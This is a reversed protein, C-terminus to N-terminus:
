PEVKVQTIEAKTLGAATPIVENTQAGAVSVLLSYEGAPLGQPLTIDTTQRVVQDIPWKKASWNDFPLGSSLGWEAGSRDILRLTVNFNMQAPQALRWYLKVQARDRGPAVVVPDVGALTLAVDPWSITTATATAPLAEFVPFHATYLQYAAGLWVSPYSQHDLRLWHGRAWADLVNSDFGSLPKPSNLFWVRQAQTGLAQFKSFEAEVDLSPYTPIIQWPAQGGCRRYYYEFVFSTIADHVIVVDDPKAQAAIACTAARLDEKVYAPDTFQVMLWWGMIILMAALAIVALVRVRRWLLALGYGALLYFPPLIFMVHRPGTYLPRIFTAAYFALLPILLYLLTLLTSARRAKSLLGGVVGIILVCLGPLVAWEPQFIDNTRGVLFTGWVEPAISDLPRFGFTRDNIQGRSLGYGILPIALVILAVFVLLAERRRSRLLVALMVGGEFLLLFFATFHTYLMALTVVIWAVWTLWRHQPQSHSQEGPSGEGLPWDIARLLLYVSAASLAALLTYMRAEQSYWVVFPSFAGLVAALMGAAPSFLRTGLAYLLAVLVLGAGASLFRLAYESEGALARVVSLGVFYLPPNTDQTPVNPPVVIVNSLNQTLTLRSRYLSLGEDSWLSQGDLQYVRLAWAILLLAVLLSYRRVMSREIM